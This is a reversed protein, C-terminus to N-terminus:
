DIRVSGNATDFVAAVVGTGEDSSLWAVEVGDFPQQNSTGLYDDIRAEDGAIELHTLRVRSGGASPHDAPDSHWQVFFPLQADDAVDNVGIQSWRLDVGDPRRRHGAAATRELRAEIPAIDDVGIVWALWGGGDDSRDRVARGFPARDVAPHDLAAVVELYCGDALPLVFNRTGFSPHIGGDIFGAGLRAGLSQVCAGLGEPGAAYSVHDLRM